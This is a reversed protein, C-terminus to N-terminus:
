SIFVFCYGDGSPMGGGALTGAWNMKKAFAEAARAHNEDPNLGDDYSVTLSGSFAKAIIRSGRSNTPGVYKTVIAQKFSLRTKAM